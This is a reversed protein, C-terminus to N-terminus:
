SFLPPVILLLNFRVQLALYASRSPFPKELVHRDVAIKDLIEAHHAAKEFDYSRAWSCILALLLPALLVVEMGPMFWAWTQTVTWGWGLLYLALLHFGALGFFQTKQQRHFMQVLPRRMGLDRTIRQCYYGTRLSGVLWLAAMGGVTLLWSGDPGLWDPPEPWRTQLSILALFLLLVFPM